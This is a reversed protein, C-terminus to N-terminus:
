ARASKHPGHDEFLPRVGWGQKLAGGSAEVFQQTIYLSASLMGRADFLGSHARQRRTAPTVRRGGGGASDRSRAGM